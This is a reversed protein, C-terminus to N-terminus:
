LHTPTLLIKLTGIGILEGVNQEKLDRSIDMIHYIHSSNSKKEIKFASVISGCWKVHTLIQYSIARGISKSEFSQSNM